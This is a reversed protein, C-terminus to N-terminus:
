DWVAGRGREGGEGLLVGHENPRVGRQYDDYAITVDHLVSGEVRRMCALAAVMGSPKPHLVYRYPPLGRETAYQNSKAINSQSLDTGEPFILLSPPKDINVHYSLMNTIHPIDSERKRELFIYLGMQMLWGYVPATRLADKLIVLMDSVVGIAAGYCWGVFMWDIRTRHNCLVLVGKGESLISPDDCHIFVQTGCLVEILYAAFELYKGSWYSVYVRRAQIVRRSPVTILLASPFVVLAICFAAWTMLLLFTIGRIFKLPDSSM